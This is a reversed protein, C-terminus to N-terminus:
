CTEAPFTILVNFSCYASVTADMLCVNLDAHMNTAGYITGHIGDMWERCCHGCTPTDLECRCARQPAKKGTTVLASFSTITRTSGGRGGSM